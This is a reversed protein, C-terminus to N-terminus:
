EYSNNLLMYTRHLYTVIQHRTVVHDPQEFPHEATMGTIIRQTDVCWVLAKLDDQPISPYAAARLALAQADPKLAEGTVLHSYAYIIQAATRYTAERYWASADDILGVSLAWTLAADGNGNDQVAPDGLMHYITRVLEQIGYKAELGFETPSLPEMFGQEIMFIAASEIYPDTIDTFNIAEQTQHPSVTDFVHAYYDSDLIANSLTFRNAVDNMLSELQASDVAAGDYRLATATAADYSLESTLFSQDALIAIGEADSLADRGPLLRSDYAVGLLNLVTPLIDITSCYKDVEIPEMNPIYCFFANRFKEFVPDVNHGALENYCEDPLGYPYHDTSLVIMTNDAKGAAELEQMLTELAYELELNCAIYAKTTESYPLHAVAQRNKRSMANNWDYQYHGSYTMYYVHFPADSRVFDGVSAEIMKLDSCPSEMPIQLGQGVARFDYGMNRHTAYREYFTAYYNHYALTEYGVESLANGLCYPLYNKSSVSFSSDTKNRTMNPLLGTCFSYEGNTTTNPFSNYFNRFVFGNNALKYLTPTLAEDILLPSFAEACITIVNYGSALGTYAHKETPVVGSLYRDITQLNEDETSEALADFDIELANEGSPPPAVDETPEQTSMVPAFSVPEEGATMAGLLGRAEQVTTVLMGVSRVSAETSTNPNSLLAYASATSTNTLHLILTIFLAVLLNWGICLMLNPLKLRPFRLTKRFILIGGAVCPLLLLVVSFLNSWIAYLMQSFFNTVAQTGMMLQSVSMFTRFICHYVLQTEYYLVTLAILAFCIIRNVKEPLLSTLLFLVGGAGIAFILPYLVHLDGYILLHLTLELYAFLGICFGLACLHSQYNEKITQPFSKLKTKM